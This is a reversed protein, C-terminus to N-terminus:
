RTSRIGVASRESSSTSGLPQERHAGPAKPKRPRPAREQDDDQEEPKKKESDSEDSGEGLIDDVKGEEEEDEMLKEFRVKKM